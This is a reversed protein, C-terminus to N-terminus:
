QLGALRKIDGLSDADIPVIKATKKDGAAESLLEKGKVVTASRSDLVAPLYKDYASRLKETQVSELLQSMVGRKKNDLPALLESLVNSRTARDQTKKLDKQQSELLATKEAVAKKSEALQSEIGALKKEFKKVVANENLYTSAFETAFAEYLKRGFNNERAAKIDEHLQTIEHNLTEAVIKSVAKGSREVFKAKLESLRERAEAVLKVRTEALAAKDQAFENIEEALSAMVFRELKAAHPKSIKRETAFEALEEALARTAFSNFKKAAAKMEKVTQLKLKAVTNREEKIKTVEATLTENVM